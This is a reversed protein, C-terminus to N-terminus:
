LERLVDLIYTGLRCSDDVLDGSCKQATCLRFCRLLAPFSNDVSAFRDNVLGPYTHQSTKNSSTLQGRHSLKIMVENKIHGLLDSIRPFLHVLTDTLAHRFQRLRM